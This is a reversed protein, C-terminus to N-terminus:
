VARCLILIETSKYPWRAVGGRMSVHYMTTAAATFGIELPLRTAAKGDHAWHLTGDHGGLGPHVSARNPPALGRELVLANRVSRADSDPMDRIDLRHLRLYGTEVAGTLNLFCYADYLDFESEVRQVVLDLMARDCRGENMRIACRALALGWDASEAIRAHVATRLAQDIATNQM